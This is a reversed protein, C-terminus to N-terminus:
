SFDTLLKLLWFGYNDTSGRIPGLDWSGTGPSTGSTAWYGFGINGQLSEHLSWVDKTKLFCIKSLFKSSFCFLKKFSFFM